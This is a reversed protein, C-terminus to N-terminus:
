QGFKEFTLIYGNNDKMSFQTAGCPTLHPHDLLKCGQEVEDYFGRLDDVQFCIAASSGISQGSLFGVENRLRREEKFSILFTELAMKAWYLAEDEQESALLDFGLVNKYFEVTEEVDRVMLELVIGNIKM